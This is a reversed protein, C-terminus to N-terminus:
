FCQSPRPIGAILSVVKTSSGGPFLQMLYNSASKEKGLTNRIFKAFPRQSPSVEYKEYFKQMTYIIEWHAPELVLDMKKAMSVALDPSWDDTNKLYGHEDYQINGYIDSTSM